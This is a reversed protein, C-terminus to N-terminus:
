YREVVQKKNQGDGRWKIEQVSVKTGLTKGQFFFFFVQRQRKIRWFLAIIETLSKNFSFIGHIDGLYM